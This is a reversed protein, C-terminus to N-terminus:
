REPLKLRQGSVIMTSKLGNLKMIEKYRYGSGLQKAAIGWLTDGRKVTYTKAGVTVKCTYKKGYLTVTITATGNKKATIKGNQDVSVIKSNSSKWSTADSGCNFKLQYSKGKTLSLSSRNLAIAKFPIGAAKAAKEAKSGRPAYITTKKNSVGYITLETDPSTIVIRKLDMCGTFPNNIRKVSSPITIETLGSDDFAGDEIIQLGDPLAITKLSSCNMFAMEGIYELNKPLIIETLSSCSAFDGKGITRVNDPITITKLNPLYLSEYGLKLLSDPFHITTIYPSANGWPNGERITHIGDPVTVETDNGTYEILVVCEGDLQEEPVLHKQTTRIVKFEGWTEIKGGYTQELYAEWDEFPDIIEPEDLDSIQALAAYPFFTCVTLLSLLISLVKKM